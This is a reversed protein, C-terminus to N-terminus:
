RNLEEVVFDLRDNGFFLEEGVMISPVGFVGSEVALDNNSELMPWIDPQQANELLQEPNDIGAEHLVRKMEEADSLNIAKAWVADFIATTYTEMQNQQEAAIAGLYLPTPDISRLHPNLAIPAGYKIAWRIVDKQAYQGKAASELTTPSNNVRKMVELTAIPRYQISSYQDRLMTILQHHALYSYPSLFDYYLTIPKAM